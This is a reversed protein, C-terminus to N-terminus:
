EVAEMEVSPGAESEELLWDYKQNSCPIVSSDIVVDEVDEEVDGVDLVVIVDVDVEVVSEVLVVVLLVVLVLM